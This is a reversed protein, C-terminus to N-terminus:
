GTKPIDPLFVTLMGPLPLFSCFLFQSRMPRIFKRSSIRSLTGASLETSVAGPSIVTTRINYPKAEQRLGESLAQLAHKTAMYVVIGPRVKHDIVFSVNIIHGAEQQKMYPQAVAIGYLVGKLNIDIMRDWEDIKLCEFPAQAMLGANNIMVDIHGFTQVLADVLRKMQDFYAVDTTVALTEGGSGTLDDV